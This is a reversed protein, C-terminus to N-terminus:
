LVKTKLAREEYLAKEMDILINGIVQYAERWADMFEISAEKGLTEEMAQMLVMGIMPYHVPDINLDVHKQAIVLLAPRLKEIKEINIAYASLIEALKMYQDEQMDAFLNEIHPYKSFLIEFMRKTIKSDNATVLEATSKIISISQPSLTSLM